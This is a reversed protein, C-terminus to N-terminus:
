RARIAVTGDNTIRLAAVDSRRTDRMVRLVQTCSQHDISSKRLANSRIRNALICPQLTHGVHKGKDAAVVIRVSHDPIADRHRHSLPESRLYPAIETCAS